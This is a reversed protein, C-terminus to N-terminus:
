IDYDEYLYKDIKYLVDKSKKVPKMSKIERVIENKINARVRNMNISDRLEKIHGCLNTMRDSLKNLECGINGMNVNIDTLFLKMLERETPENEM